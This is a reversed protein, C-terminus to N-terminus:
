ERDDESMLYSKKDEFKENEGTISIEDLGEQNEKVQMKRLKELEKNVEDGHKRGKRYDSKIWLIFGSTLLIGGLGLFTLIAVIGIEVMTFGCVEQKPASYLVSILFASGIVIFFLGLSSLYTFVREYNLSPFSLPM